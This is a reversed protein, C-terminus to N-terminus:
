EREQGHKKKRKGGEQEIQIASEAFRRNITLISISIDKAPPEKELERGKRLVEKKNKGM